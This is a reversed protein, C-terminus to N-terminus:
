IKVLKGSASKSGTQVRWVYVGAQPMAQPSIDLLHNGESLDQVNAWLTKGSLDTIEVRVREVQALRVPISTGATTPNPQPASILTEEVTVLPQSQRFDLALAQPEDNLSGLNEFNSTTKFVASVEVTELARVRLSLMNQGPLIRQAQDNAWVFHLLGPQPQYFADNDLGPLDGTLVELIEVKEPDFQLGLQLGSWNGADAMQLTIESVEGKFLTADPLTLSQTPLGRDHSPAQLGPWADCDLDGIKIATFRVQYSSDLMANPINAFEPFVTQFPNQPNPFVFNADIFRWSQNNPLSSTIGLLLKRLEILDFGTITGSKNADAAILNYPTLDTDLGLIFRKIKILDFVTVGNLPFLSNAPRININGLILSNTPFLACGAPDLPGVFGLYAQNTTLSVGHVPSASCHSTVCATIHASLNDCSGFNDQVIVYTECYSANGDQDKAWLEVCQTGLENCDFIVKKIGNNNGDMPFGTGTGCKRIGFELLNAPTNDDEAYQLFDASWMDIQGTPMINVALGNICVITPAGLTGGGGCYGDNDQIIVYTECYAANGDLDRAWLEVCQAGLETCNYTLDLVPDGNGDVPFGIGTGCKRIGLKILNSPTSDDEVYQLFDAASLQIQESALINVTLGNHCVVKPISDSGLFMDCGGDNSQIIVYTECFDANGAADRAWLEVAMTGLEACSFTVDTVPTGDPHTPFGAGAGLKRIGIQIMNGPSTNDLTYQLFDAAWLTVQATPLINASLGNLCVVTPKQCDKVVIPYECISNNGLNDDALWKIKHTAYPLEANVFVNPQNPTNWRLHAQGLNGSLTAEIAFQYKDGAAVPREDFIRVDGGDYNPNNWNNFNVTGAAPPEWSKIVTEWSGNKDLDLFLLYRLGVIAGPCTDNITLTSTVVADALDNVNNAPDLWYTENWLASNNLSNDCAQASTQCNQLVICQAAMQSYCVFLLVFALINKM